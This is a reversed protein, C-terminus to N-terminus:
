RVLVIRERRGDAEVFYVGPSLAAADTRSNWVVAGSADRVTVRSRGRALLPHLPTLVTPLRTTRSPLVFDHEAVGLTDLVLLRRYTTCYPNTGFFSRYWGAYRPTWDRFWVLQTDGVNLTVWVSDWHEDPMTEHGLYVWGWVSAPSLGYNQFVVCVPVQQGVRFSDGSPSHVRVIGVDGAQLCRVFVDDVYTTDGPVGGARGQIRIGSLWKRPDYLTDWQCETWTSGPYYTVRRTAGDTYFLDLTMSGPQNPQRAWFWVYPGRISDFDQRIWHGDTDWACYRGGHPNVTDVVWGNTTWPSLSGTEFDGNILNQGHVATLATVAFLFASVSKM